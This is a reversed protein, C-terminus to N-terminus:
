PLDHGVGVKRSRWRSGSLRSAIPQSAESVTSNLKTSSTGKGCTSAAPNQDCPPGPVPTLSAGDFFGAQPPGQLLRGRPVLGPRTHIIAV